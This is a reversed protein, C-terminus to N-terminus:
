RVWIMLANRACRASSPMTAAWPSAPTLSNRAITASSRSSRKGISARALAKHQRRLKLGQLRRNPRDLHLMAPVLRALPNFGDRAYSNQPRGRDHRRHRVRSDKPRPAIERGPDPQHWALIRGPALLLEPRDGLLSVAVQSANEHDPRDRHQSTGLLIGPFIGPEHLQQRPPGKLDHRHREGVLHRAGGPCQHSMAAGIPRRLKYFGRLPARRPLSPPYTLANVFQLPSSSM